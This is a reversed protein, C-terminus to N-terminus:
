ASRLRTSFMYSTPKRMIIGILIFFDLYNNGNDISWYISFFFMCAKTHLTIFTDLFLDHIEIMESTQLAAFTVLPLTTPLSFCM